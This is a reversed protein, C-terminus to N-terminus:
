SGSDDSPGSESNGLLEQEDEPTMGNLKRAADFVRKLVKGNKQGLAQAQEPTFLAQGNEDCACRAVLRARLNRLMAQHDQGEEKEVRSREYQEVEWGDLEEGSLSRVHVYGGWEPCHVKAVKRDNLALIEEGTLPKSM